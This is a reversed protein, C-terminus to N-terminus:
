QLNELQTGFQIPLIGGWMKLNLQYLVSFLLGNSHPHFGVNRTCDTIETEDYFLVCPITGM